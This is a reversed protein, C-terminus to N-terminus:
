STGPPTPCRSRSGCDEPLEVVGLSATGSEIWGQQTWQWREGDAGREAFVNNRADRAIMHTQLRGDPLM